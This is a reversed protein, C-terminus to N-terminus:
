EMVDQAIEVMLGQMQQRHDNVGLGKVTALYLCM